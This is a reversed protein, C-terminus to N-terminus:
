VMEVAMPVGDMMSSPPPPSSLSAAATIPARNNTVGGRPAVTALAVLESVATSVRICGAAHVLQLPLSELVLKM